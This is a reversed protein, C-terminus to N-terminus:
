ETPGKLSDYSQECATGAAGREDAVRALLQGRELLRVLVDACVGAADKTPPGVRIAPTNSTGIGRRSAAVLATLRNRLGDAAASASAADSAAQALQAAHADEIEKQAATRREEEARAATTAALARAKMEADLAVWEAHGKSYGDAEREDGYHHIRLAVTGAVVLVLLATGAMRYPTPILDLLSM